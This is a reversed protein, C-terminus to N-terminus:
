APRPRKGDDVGRRPPGRPLPGRRRPVRRLRLRHRRGETGPDPRLGGAGLRRVQQHPGPNYVLPELAHQVVETALSKPTYHAGATARSPTEVVVLGGPLFVTPRERLDRRIAGIFPRLRERLEEDGPVVARLARDADEVEASGKIAKALASKTPAVAAPQDNKAWDIIANALADPKAHKAAFDELLSLPIEPEEGKKGILGVIIERVDACSYGLLGEYIYGIQEVDIDRFSIRRAPEGRLEAIQAARLVELMVRDSVTVALTEHADRVSLFPFRAPDFLSGGYSPLRIDEFSAGRYLAQSTALLRYWTLNTRDLAEAGEDRARQDLTNLEDSIGYGGTFLQSQPLLGREEAFLLFVVRMMMTVAAQYVQDRNAPLPDPEGTAQAALASESLAQVLLEVARRVNTGLAETIEEAAAVSDKFLETLLDEQRRGVLRPLRLLQLFGNRVTPLEIWRQSDTIGSAVMTEPRASVVAWWRGDTVLGVCVGSTRLLEEMRDIPSAAWGDDLPARLSEVPDTVLVLAGTTDGRSLAGTPTVTVSYDPSHVKVDASAPTLYFNKWGLVTRLIVDVWADRATRYAELATADDGDAIDWADWAKEFAPKADHLADLAARDPAPMGTPWAKKLAPVSLFPGDTDLLDLWDRHPDYSTM